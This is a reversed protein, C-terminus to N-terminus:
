QYSLRKNLRVRRILEKLLLMYRKFRAKCEGNSQLNAFNALSAASPM